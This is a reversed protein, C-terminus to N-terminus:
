CFGVRAVRTIWDGGSAAEFEQNVIMASRGAPCVGSVGPDISVSSYDGFRYEGAAGHAGVAVTTGVGVLSQVADAAGLGSVRTAVNTGNGPDTYAWNLFVYRNGGSVGVAISPNWDYSSSSTYAVAATLGLNGADVFGYQIVPFGTARAFWVQNGLQSPAWQLRGDLADLTQGGGPQQGQNPVGFGNEATRGLYTLSTMDPTAANNMRYVDFSNLGYPILSALMYWNGDQNMPIGAVVSSVTSFDVQFAPISFGQGNYIRAKAVAFVASNIYGPNFNNTTIAIADQSMGIKPYDMLTGTPYLGGGFFAKYIWWKGAPNSTQSTAIWIAPLPNTTPIITIVWRNWVNDYLVNPDSLGDATGLFTSFSTRRVLTPPSDKKWVTMALNVTEVDYVKSVAGSTDPPQCGCASNADNTGAFNQLIKTPSAVTPAFAPSSLKGLSAASGTRAAAPSRTGDMRLTGQPHAAAKVALRSAEVATLGPLSSVDVERAPSLTVTGGPKILHSANAAPASALVSSPGAMILGTVLVGVGTIAGLKTTRSRNM